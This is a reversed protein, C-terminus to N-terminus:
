RMKCKSIEGVCYAYSIDAEEWWGCLKAGYILLLFMFGIILIGSALETFRYDRNNKNTKNKM